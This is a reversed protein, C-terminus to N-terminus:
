FDLFLDDLHYYRYPRKGLFNLILDHNTGVGFHPRSRNEHPPVWVCDWDWPHRFWIPDLRWLQRCFWGDMLGATGGRSLPLSVLVFAFGFRLFYRLFPFM